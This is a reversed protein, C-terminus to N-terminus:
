DQGAVPWRLCLRMAAPGCHYSRLALPAPRDAWQLYNWAEFRGPRVATVTFSLEWHLEAEEANGLPGINTLVLEFVGPM